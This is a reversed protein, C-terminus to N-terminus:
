LQVSDNKWQLKVTVQVGVLIDDDIQLDVVAQHGVEARTWLLVDSCQRIVLQCHFDIFYVCYDKIWQYLLWRTTVGLSVVNRHKLPWGTTQSGHKVVVNPVLWVRTEGCNVLLAMSESQLRDTIVQPPHLEIDVDRSDVIGRDPLVICEEGGHHRESKDNIILYKPERVFSWLEHWCCCIELDFSLLCGDM